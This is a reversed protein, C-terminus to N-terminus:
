APELSPPCQLALSSAQSIAKPSQFWLAGRSAWAILDPTLRADLMDKGESAGSPSHDAGAADGAGGDPQRQEVEGAVHSGAKGSRRAAM